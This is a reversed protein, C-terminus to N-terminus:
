NSPLPAPEADAESQAPAPKSTAGRAKKAARTAADRRELEMRAPTSYTAPQAASDVTPQAAAPLDRASGRRNGVIPQAGFIMGTPAALPAPTEASAVPSPPPLAVTDPKRSSAEIADYQTVRSIWEALQLLQNQDAEGFLPLQSDAHPNTAAQILKSRSPDSHDIFKLASYLNRQTIRAAQNKNSPPRLLRLAQSGSLGHCGSTGCRNLLMPQVVHAFDEATGRPLSRILRELEDAGIARERNADAPAVRRPANAQELRRKVYVIRRDATDIQEATAVERAAHETLGQDICWVAMKLHHEVSTVDGRGALLRYAEDLSGCVFAVEDRRLRIEGSDRRVHLRGDRQTVRGHLTRGNNLLVVQDATLELAPPAAMVVGAALLLCLFVPARLYRRFVSM